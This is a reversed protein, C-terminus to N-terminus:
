KAARLKGNRRRERDEIQRVRERSIGLLLGIAHLTEGADRLRVIRKARPAAAAQQQRNFEEMDMGRM